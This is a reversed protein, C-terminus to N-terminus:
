IEWTQYSKEKKRKLTVERSLDHRVGHRCGASCVREASLAPPKSLLPPSFQSTVSSLPCFKRGGCFFILLRWHSSDSETWPIVHFVDVDSSVFLLNLCSRLMLKDSCGVCTQRFLSIFWYAVFIFLWHTITFASCHISRYWKDATETWHVMHFQLWLDDECLCWDTPQHFNIYFYLIDVSICM